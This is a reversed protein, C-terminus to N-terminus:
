SLPDRRVRIAAERGNVPCKSECLGCGICLTHDVVPALLAASTQPVLQIAKEPLPCMEECVGCQGRGSWPICLAPDVYAKGIVTIQKLPLDLRPIAATPCTDGCATCAYECEGLRPVLVPTWLGELGAEYLSPQLGHTPCVRLCQGCRICSSLMEEERAGPPRLLHPDPRLTGPAIKLLGVLGTGAALTGLIQRRTPDYPWSEELRWPGQFSIADVPCVTACDLCLTCEGSDSAYAREANITGMPCARECAGCGVCADSVQRRILSGKSVLGLLAGLPCAYRCWARRSVLNLALTGVLASAVLVAGSALAPVANLLTGRLAGDVARLAGRLFEAQYLVTELRTFLWDFAPLVVSATTRVFITLPDLVLLTLSGWVAAFLTVFLIGYKLLRWTDSPDRRASQNRPSLWDILTGLPCLWSCWSRGVVLAIALLVLGPIFRSIFRGSALMAAIGALPDLRLLTDNPLPTTVDRLTWVVLGGFTLLAVVRVVRRVQRLRRIPM